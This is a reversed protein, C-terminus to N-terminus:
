PKISNIVETINVDIWHQDWWEMPTVFIGHVLMSFHLHDGGAMGTAGSHGILQDKDVVTDLSTDIRNLHAYLSFLGQGHDLIVTNGYIGLYEAFVVKGRNAAKVPVHATSAIDMGLHTQHDIPKGQYYYTRQDAFGARGAGPMRLFRGQWLQEPLPKACIQRIQKANRRRIENNAFLYQELLTGQMEPYYEEFEPIKRKLFSDSVNIRDRKEPVKKFTMTFVAKGQNGAEDTALVRTQEPAKANWPLAIYAIFVNELNKLPYGAFFAKDIQVGHHRAPESLRYVVIGSGGPRIYRQAHEIAIRPPITDIVVPIRTVTENGRFFGNLSFDRATLVLEAKGNRAGAKKADFVVKQRVEQPGAGSLWARRQFSRSFIVSERGDQVLTITLASLGSRRDSALLPLTVNGGLSHIGQELAVYPKETEFLIFAGAGIIAIVVALLIFLLTRGAKGKRPSRRLRNRPAM